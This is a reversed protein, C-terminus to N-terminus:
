RSCLVGVAGCAAARRRCRRAPAPYPLSSERRRRTSPFYGESSAPATPSGCGGSTHCATHWLVGLELLHKM